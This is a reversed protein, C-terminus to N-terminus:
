HVCGRRRTRRKPGESSKSRLYRLGEVILEFQADDLRRLDALYVKSKQRPGSQLTSVIAAAFELAIRNQKTDAEGKATRSVSRVILDMLARSHQECGAVADESRQNQPRTRSVM